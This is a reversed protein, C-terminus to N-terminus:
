PTRIKELLEIRNAVGAKEYIHRVHTKVTSESVCCIEAIEKSAKGHLLLALVEAERQSLHFRRALDDPSSEGKGAEAVPGEGRTGGSSVAEPKGELAEPRPEVPFGKASRNSLSAGLGERVARVAEGVREEGEAGQLKIRMMLVAPITGAFFLIISVFAIGEMDVGYLGQILNVFPSGGILGLGAFGMCAAKGIKHLQTMLSLAYLAAAGLGFGIFLDSFMYTLPSAQYGFLALSVPIALVFSLGFHLSFGRKGILHGMMLAGSSLSIFLILYHPWGVISLEDFIAGYYIGTILGLSFLLLSAYAWQYLSDGREEEAPLALLPALSLWFLPLMSILMHLAVEPVYPWLYGLLMALVAGLAIGYGMAKERGDVRQAARLLYPVLAGACIGMGIIGWLGPQYFSFLSMGLGFLSFPILLWPASPLSLIGVLAGTGAWSLILPFYSEPFFFPIWLLYATYAGFAVMLKGM